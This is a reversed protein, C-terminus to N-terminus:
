ELSLEYIREKGNVAVCEFGLSQYLKQSAINYDYITTGVIRKIGIDAARRLITEMVKKGIGQGRYKDVGIVIPSNEEKLAVDGIPIFEGGEAVEIFYMESKGNTEFWDYMGQVYAEDPMKAPDTIGESNYYVVPNQYWPLGTLYNGDYARLRLTDTINIIPPQVIGTIAM